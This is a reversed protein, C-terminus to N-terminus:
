NFIIGACIVFIIIIFVSVLIPFLFIQKLGVINAIPETTLRGTIIGTEAGIITFAAALSIGNEGFWFILLSMSLSDTGGVGIGMLIRSIYILYINGNLLLISLYLLISSLTFGIFQIFILTSIISGKFPLIKDWHLIYPIFLPTIIALFYPISIIYSYEASSWNYKNILASEIYAPYWLVYHQSFWALSAAICMYWKVFSKNRTEASIDTEKDDTNSPEAQILAELEKNTDM